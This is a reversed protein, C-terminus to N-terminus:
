HNTWQLNINFVYPSPLSSVNLFQGMSLLLYKTISQYIEYHGDGDMGLAVCACIHFFLLHLIIVKLLSNFAQTSPSIKATIMEGWIRFALAVDRGCALILLQYTTADPSVGAMRMDRQVGLAKGRDGLAIYLKIVSNFFVINGPRGSHNMEDIFPFAEHPRKASVCVNVLTTLTFSDPHIGKYRFEEVLGLAADLDGTRECAKLMTNLSIINPAIKCAPFLERFVTIARHQQGAEACANLLANLAVLTPAVKQARMAQMIHLARDPEHTVACLAMMRTLTSGDPAVGHRQMMALVDFGRRAHSAETCCSMLHHYVTLPLAAGKAHASEVFGFAGDLDRSRACVHLVTIYAITDPVLNLVEFERFLGLAVM